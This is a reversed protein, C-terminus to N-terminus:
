KVSASQFALLGTRAPTLRAQVPAPAPAPALWGGVAQLPAPEGRRSVWAAVALRPARNSPAPLTMNATYHGGDATMWVHRYGLVVFDHHLTRGRNEGAQVHTHLGFGLLAVYLDLGGENVAEPPPRFSAQLEQHDLRLVLDGPPPSPRPRPDRERYWDRWEKGNLFVAPTYVASMDLVRAYREERASYRPSSFRDRWGIHNWFDVHFAVPVLKRWLRPDHEFGNLWHDAPPCSSCGESTYLELLNVRAAGSRLTQAAACALPAALLAVALVLVRAPM